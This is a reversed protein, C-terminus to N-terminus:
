KKDDTSKSADIVKCFTNWQESLNDLAKKTRKKAQEAKYLNVFNTIVTAIVYVIMALFIMTLGLIIAAALATLCGTFVLSIM